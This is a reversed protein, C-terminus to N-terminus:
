VSRVAEAPDLRSARLVPHLSSVIGILLAAGVALPVFWPRLEFALETEAFYPLAAWSAASGAAWGALGGLLSIVAVEIMLGRVIHAKRFGIARLVGIERTREVVSGTMTTFILLAGITLVVGSVAASFRALRDVTDERARVSQQVATVRAHPLREGIQAVIDEVPCEKCLASVEILSVGDPRKLLERVSPLAAFVMRDEPGATPAIVGTVRFPRGGIHVETKVLKIEPRMPTAHHRDSDTPATPAAAPPSPESTGHAAHADDRAASGEILSLAAAAEYGVLLDSPEQPASGSIHWWRKLKLENGIDVGAILVRRGGVEVTGLLKPAVVSLRNRYPIDSVDEVDQGTLARADVSVSSVAVGGYNVSLSDSKPVVIINAGFQDLQTGIEKRISGSLSLLAVVTGIGIAMGAALFAAKAKRRRLNAFAITSIRM